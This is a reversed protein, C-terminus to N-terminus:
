FCDFNRWFDDFVMSFPWLYNFFWWFSDLFWHFGEFDISFLRFGYFVTLFYDFVQGFCGLYTLFQSALGTLVWLFYRLFCCQGDFIRWSDDFITYFVDFDDFIRLFNHFFLQSYTLFWWVGYFFKLIYRFGNLVKLFRWFYTFFGDFVTM